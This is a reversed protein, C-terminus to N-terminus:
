PRREASGRRAPPRSPEGPTPLPPGPRDGARPARPPLHGLVEDSRYTDGTLSVCRVREPPTTKSNRTGVARLCGASSCFDGALAQAIRELAVDLEAAPLPSRLAWYAHLHGPTGSSVLMSPWPIVKGLLGARNDGDLDAWLAWTRRIPQEHRPGPVLEHRPAVGLCVNTREGLALLESAIAQRPEDCAYFMSRGRGPVDTLVEILGGTSEQGAIIALQAELARRAPDGRRSHPSTVTTSSSIRSM